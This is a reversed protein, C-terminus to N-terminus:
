SASGETEYAKVSRKSALDTVSAVIVADAPDSQQRHHRGRPAWHSPEPCDITAGDLQPSHAGPQLCPRYDARSKCPANIDHSEACGWCHRTRSHWGDEPECPPDYRDGFKDADTGPFLQEAEEHLAQALREEHDQRRERDQQWAAYGLQAIRDVQEQQQQPTLRPKRSRFLRM